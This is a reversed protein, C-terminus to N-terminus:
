PNLGDEYIGCFVLRILCTSRLKNCGVKVNEDIAMNKDCIVGLHKYETREEIRSNRFPWTRTSQLFMRKLENYVVVLCKIIGHEFRWKNGYNLCIVLMQLLRTVSYSGVLMDNFVTPFGCSIGHICVGLASVELEYILDNIYIFYLFHSIFGGQRTGQQVPFWGSKHGRGRACSFMDTYMNVTLRCFTNNIGSDHLGRAM